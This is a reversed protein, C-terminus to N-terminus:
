DDLDTKCMALATLLVIADIIFALPSSKGVIDILCAVNLKECFSSVNFSCLRFLYKFFSSRNGGIV